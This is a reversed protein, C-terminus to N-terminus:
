PAPLMRFRRSDRLDSEAEDPRGSDPLTLATPCPGFGILLSGIDGADVMGSGDLDAPGGAQGFALLLSGIDGADIMGSGDLDGPCCTATLDCLRVTVFEAAELLGDGDGAPCQQAAVLAGGNANGFPAASLLVEDPMSGILERLNITGELVGGNAGTFAARTAAFTQSQAADFWGCFGNDNEDALFARWAMTQGGKSWPAATLAGTQDALLLFVDSGEGADQTAVYLVDGQLGAWVSRGSRTAVATAGADLTGDMQWSPQTGGEVAFHWDQGGNNDWTGSGNNFVVDLQTASAPVSVSCSWKGDSGRTMTVDPSIVSDWANFGVHAKVSTASALARGAADYTISVSSGAQV